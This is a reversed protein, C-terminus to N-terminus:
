GAWAHDTSSRGTWSRGTWRRGTRAAGAWDVSCLCTGTWDAGNWTGGNWTTGAMAAPAWVAPQWPSGMIDKEGTLEVDNDAVHNTGRAAELSGLGSAQTWAQRYILPVIATSALNLNLMGAGQSHADAS